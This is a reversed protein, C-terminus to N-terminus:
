ASGGGRAKEVQALLQNCIGLLEKNEAAAAALQARMKVVEEEAEGKGAREKLLAVKESLADREGQVRSLILAAASAKAELNQIEGAQRRQAVQANTLGELAKQLKAGAEAGAKHALACAEEKAALAGKLEEAKAQEASLVSRVDEMEVSYQRLQATLAQVQIAATQSKQCEEGLKSKMEEFQKLHSANAEERAKTAKHLVSRLEETEKRKRHLDEEATQLQRTVLSLQEEACQRASREM